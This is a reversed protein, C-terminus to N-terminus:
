SPVQGNFLRLDSGHRISALRVEDFREHYRGPCDVIAVLDVM